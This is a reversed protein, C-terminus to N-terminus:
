LLNVETVPIKAGRPKLEIEQMSGFVDTEVSFTLELGPFKFNM